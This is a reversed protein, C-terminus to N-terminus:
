VLDVFILIPASGDTNSVTLKQRQHHQYPNTRSSAVPKDNFPSRSTCDTNAPVRGVVCGLKEGCFCRSINGLQCAGGRGSSGTSIKMPIRDAPL